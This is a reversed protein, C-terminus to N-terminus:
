SRIDEPGERLEPRIHLRVGEGRRERREEAQREAKGLADIFLDFGKNTFEYRGSIYVFLADDYRQVPLLLHLVAELFQQLERAYESLDHM